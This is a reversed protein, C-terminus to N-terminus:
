GANHIKKRNRRRQAEANRAAIEPNRMPNRDGVFKAAIEKRKMPNNAGPRKMPNNTRIKFQVEPRKMAARTAQRHAEAGDILRSLGLYAL